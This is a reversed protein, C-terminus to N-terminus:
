NAPDAPSHQPLDFKFRAQLPRMWFNMSIHRAPNERASAGQTAAGEGLFYSYTIRQDKESCANNKRM